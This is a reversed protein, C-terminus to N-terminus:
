KEVYWSENAFVSPEKGWEGGAKTRDEPTFLALKEMLLDPPWVPVM